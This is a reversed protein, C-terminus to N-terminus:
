HIFFQMDGELIDHQRSWLWLVTPVLNEHYNEPIRYYLFSIAKKTVDFVRDPFKLIQVFCLVFTVCSMGDKQLAIERYNFHLCCSAELKTVKRERRHGDFVIAKWDIYLLNVLRSSCDIKGIIVRYELAITVEILKLGVLWIKRVYPM